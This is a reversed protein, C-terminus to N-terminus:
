DEDLDLPPWYYDINQSSNPRKILGQIDIWEIEHKYAERLVSRLYDIIEQNTASQNVPLSEIKKNM